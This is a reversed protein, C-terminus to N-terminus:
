IAILDAIKRMKEMRFHFTDSEMERGKDDEVAKM